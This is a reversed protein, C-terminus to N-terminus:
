IEDNKCRYEKYKEQVKFLLGAHKNTKYHLCYIKLLM